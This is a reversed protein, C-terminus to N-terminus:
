IMYHEERAGGLRRYSTCGGAMRYFDPKPPPPKGKLSNSPPAPMDLFKKYLTSLVQM